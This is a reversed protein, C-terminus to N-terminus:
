QGSGTAAAPAAAPAAPSGAVTTIQALGSDPLPKVRDRRLRVIAAAALGGDSRSSPTAVVLDSPVAVQARLNAENAGSPRWVHPRLYPDTANCGALALILCFIPFRSM